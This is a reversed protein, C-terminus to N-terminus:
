QGLPLPCIVNLLPLFRTMPCAGCEGPPLLIDTMQLVRVLLVTDAYDVKVHLGGMETVRIVTLCSIMVSLLAGCVKLNDVTM